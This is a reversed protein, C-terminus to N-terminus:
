LVRAVRDPVVRPPFSHLPFSVSFDGRRWRAAAEQFAVVFSRYQERLEKLARHTSAHGM